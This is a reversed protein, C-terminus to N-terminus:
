SQVITFPVKVPPPVVAVPALTLKVPVVLGTVSRTVAVLVEPQETRSGNEHIDAARVDDIFGRENPDRLFSFNLETEIHERGLWQRRNM